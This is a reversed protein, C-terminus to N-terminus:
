RRDVHEQFWFELMMLIWLMTGYYAAHEHLQTGLLRELFGSDFIQRKALSGLADKAMAQLPPYSALWPGTPLGFGHKQKAIIERPLFDRLAEKFFYRLRTGRLKLGPALAASFRVVSDHLLPFAVDVGARDCMRTVKPLDNDALTFKLDIAIMRNILSRAHVSDHIASLMGLPARRDVTALFARDFVNEPGLHELLNHTEYRAPMPLRAQEVYSRGKGALPLMGALSTRLAPEILGTRLSAPIREYLSLQYQKAYRANGGFLEDGGDGALMRDVGENAALKACFYTPVASANGFPQDYDAAVIPLAAVVDAPTVYYEHQETRFHAAAIHAYKMEDYGAADFGISFTKVAGAKHQSLIGTITSSDTGGSLFTGCEPTSAVADVGSHLVSRFERELGSMQARGDEAFPM